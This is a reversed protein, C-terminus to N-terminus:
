VPLSMVLLWVSAVSQLWVMVREGLRAERCTVLQYVGHAASQTLVVSLASWALLKCLSYQISRRTDATLLTSIGGTQRAAGAVFSFAAFLSSDVGDQNGKAAGRYGGMLIPSRGQSQTQKSLFRHRVLLTPSAKRSGARLGVPSRSFRAYPPRLARERRLGGPRM